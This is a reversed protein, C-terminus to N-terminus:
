RLVGVDDGDVRIAREAFGADAVCAISSRSLISRNLRRKAAPGAEDSTRYRPVTKGAPTAKVRPCSGQLREQHIYVHRTIRRLRSGIGILSRVTTVSLPLCGPPLRHAADAASSMVAAPRYTESRGAAPRSPLQQSDAGRLLRTSCDPLRHSGPRPSRPRSTAPSPTPFDRLATCGTSAPGPSVPPPVGIGCRVLQGCPDPPASRLCPLDGIVVVVSGGPPLEGDPRSEATVPRTLLRRATITSQVQYGRSCSTGSPARFSAQRRGAFRPPPVAAPVRVQAGCRSGLSQQPIVAPVRPRPPNETM